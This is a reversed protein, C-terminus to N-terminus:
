QHWNEWPKPGDASRATQNDAKLPQWRSQNTLRLKTALNAIANSQMVHFRRLLNLSKMAKNIAKTKVSENELSSRIAAIQARIPEMDAMVEDAIVIHRCMEKLLPANDATFWEPPLRGTIDLWVKQEIPRLEPPPAMREQGPIIPGSGAPLSREDTPATSRRVAM